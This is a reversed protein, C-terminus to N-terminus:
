IVGQKKQMLDKGAILGTRAKYSGYVFFAAKINGKAARSVHFRIYGAETAGNSQAGRNGTTQESCLIFTHNRRLGSMIIPLFLM